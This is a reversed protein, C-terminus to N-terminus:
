NVIELNVSNNGADVQVSLGSTGENRYRAPVNVGKTADGPVPEVAVRYNGTPIPTKFM